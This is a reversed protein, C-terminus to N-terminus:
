RVQVLIWLGDHSVRGGRHDRQAYLQTVDARAHGLLLQAGELGHTERIETAFSHRLRHPSWRDVGARECARAVARAYTTPTFNTTPGLEPNPKRNTGPRNGCNLPTKRAATRRRRAADTSEAPSFVAVDAARGDLFPRFLDQGKPGIFIVREKGRWANKHAEPRYEWVPKSRDIDIPTMRVVEGPRAGTLQQFHVMAAVIPSLYPRIADVDAEPVPEVPKSEKAESRGARLGAVARLSHLQEGSALENEVAWRICRVVRQASKNIQTRVRGSDIWQQRLTKLKLPGFERVLLRGFLRTLDRMATKIGPIEGTSSSAYYSKAFEQYRLALEAITL